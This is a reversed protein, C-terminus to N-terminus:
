APSGTTKNGGGTVRVELTEPEKGELWEPSDPTITPEPCSHLCDNEIIVGAKTLAYDIDCFGIEGTDMIHLTEWADILQSLKM